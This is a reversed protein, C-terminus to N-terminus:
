TSTGMYLRYICHNIGVEAEFKMVSPWIDPHLPNSVSFLAQATNLMSLHTDDGHYVAGSTRGDRWNELELDRYYISLPM